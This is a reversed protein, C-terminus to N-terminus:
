ESEQQLWLGHTVGHCSVGRIERFLVVAVVAVEDPQNGALQWQSRGAPYVELNTIHCTHKNKITSDCHCQINQCINFIILEWLNWEIHPTMTAILKERQTTSQYCFWCEDTTNTKQSQSNICCYLKILQTPITDKDQYVDVGGMMQVFHTKLITFMKTPTTFMQPVSLSIKKKKKHKSFPYKVQAHSSYKKNISM